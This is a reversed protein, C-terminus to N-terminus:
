STLGPAKPSAVCAAGSTLRGPATSLLRTSPQPTGSTGSIPTTGRESARQQGGSGGGYIQPFFGSRAVWYHGVFEEVRAAAIKLDYNEKLATQILDNLVPDNFQEWWVTNALDKAEPEEVRWAKPTDVSPRKYDPGIACGALTLIILLTIVMRM